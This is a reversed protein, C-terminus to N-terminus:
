DPPRQALLSFRDNRRLPRARGSLTPATATCFPHVLHGLYGQISVPHFPGLVQARFSKAPLVIEEPAAGSKYCRISHKEACVSGLVEQGVGLPGLPHNVVTCGKLM